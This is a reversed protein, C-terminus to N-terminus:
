VMTNWTLSLPWISIVLQVEENQQGIFIYVAVIMVYKEFM